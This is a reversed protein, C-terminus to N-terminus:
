WLYSYLALKHEVNCRILYFRGLYIDNEYNGVNYVATM